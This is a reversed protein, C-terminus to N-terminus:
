EKAVVFASPYDKIVRSHAKNADSMSRYPGLEVRWCIDGDRDAKIVKLLARRYQLSRMDEVLPAAAGSTEFSGIHVFFEGIIDNKKQGPLPGSTRISVRALGKNIMALKKAAAYSLDLARGPVFPGRDTITVTVTKGNELNTVTVKAHMPLLKHAATIKHMDFRGGCSTKKGQFSPGYWSAIGREEYGRATLLPYYTVGKARYHRGKEGNKDSKDPPFEPAPKPPEPPIVEIKGEPPKSQALRNGAPVPEGPQYKLAACGSLPPLLLLFLIYVRFKKMSAADPILM